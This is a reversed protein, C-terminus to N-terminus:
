AVREGIEARLRTIEERAGDLAAEYSRTLRDIEANKAATIASFAAAALSAPADPLLEAVPVRYWDALASLREAGVAREGREYSGVVPNKWVGGSKIEVAALSLDQSERVARLRRGLEAAFPSVPKSM